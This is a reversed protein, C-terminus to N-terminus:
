DVKREHKDEKWGIVQKRTVNSQNNAKINDKKFKLRGKWLKIKKVDPLGPRTSSVPDRNSGSLLHVNASLVCHM